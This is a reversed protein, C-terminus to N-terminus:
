RKLSFQQVVVAPADGMGLALAWLDAFTPRWGPLRGERWARYILWRSGSKKQAM